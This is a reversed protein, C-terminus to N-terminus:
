RQRYIMLTASLAQEIEPLRPREIRGRAAGDNAFTLLDAATAGRLWAQAKHLATPPSLRAQLHLEYFKAMLLATAGDSVPWLTGIVAEVGLALFAGPLGVFEDPNNTIEYLGTECASLVVLRPRVLGESELLRDVSLRQYQHPFVEPTFVELAADIYTLATDVNDAHVGRDRDLYASALPGVLESQKCQRALVSPESKAIM